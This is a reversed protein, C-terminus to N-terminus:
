GRARRPWTAPQPGRLPGRVDGAPHPRQQLLRVQPGLRRLEHRAPRRRERAAPGAHAPDFSFDRGRLVLPEDKAREPRRVEAGSSSTAGHIRNDLGWQFSNILGQVNTRGFGTFVVRREDAKGDGDTDKLYFIDPAAGVFM